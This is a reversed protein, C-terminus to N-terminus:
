AGEIKALLREKRRAWWGDDVERALAEADAATFRSQRVAWEVKLFSIFAEREVPTGVTAPFSITVRGNSTEAELTANM